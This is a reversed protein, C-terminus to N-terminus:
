VSQSRESAVGACCQLKAKRDNFLLDNQYLSLERHGNAGLVGGVSNHLGLPLVYSIAGKIKSVNMEVDSRTDVLLVYEDSENMLRWLEECSMLSEKPLDKTFEAAYEKLRKVMEDTVVLSSMEERVSLIFAIIVVVQSDYVVLCTFM